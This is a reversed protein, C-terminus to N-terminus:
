VALKQGLRSPAEVEQAIENKVLTSLPLQEEQAPKPSPAKRAPKGEPKKRPAKPAKQREGVEGRATVTAELRVKGPQKQPASQKEEKPSKKTKNSTAMQAM